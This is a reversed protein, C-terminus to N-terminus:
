HLRALIKKMSEVGARVADLAADTMPPVPGSDFEGEAHDMTLGFRNTTICQFHHIYCRSYVGKRYQGQLNEQEWLVDEDCALGRDTRFLGVSGLIDKRLFFCGAWFHGTLAVEPMPLIKEEVFRELDVGYIAQLFAEIKASSEPHDLYQGKLGDKLDLVERLRAHLPLLGYPHMPSIADFGEPNRLLPEIWRPFVVHDNSIYIVDQELAAGFDKLLANLATSCGYNRDMRLLVTNRPDVDDDKLLDTSRNEWVVLNIEEPPTHRYISRICTRTFEAHGYGLVFQIM